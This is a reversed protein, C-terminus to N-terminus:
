LKSLIISNRLVLMKKPHSRHPSTTPAVAEVTEPAFESLSVGDM